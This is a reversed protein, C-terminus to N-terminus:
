GRWGQHPVRGAPVRWVGHGANDGTWHSSRWPKAPDNARPANTRRAGLRPATRNRILLLPSAAILFDCAYQCPQFRGGIGLCRRRQALVLDIAVGRSDIVQVLLQKAEGVFQGGDEVAHDGILCFVSRGIGVVVLHLIALAHQAVQAPTGILEAKIQDLAGSLRASAADSRSFLRGPLLPSTRRFDSWNLVKQTLSLNMKPVQKRAEKKQTHSYYDDCCCVTPGGTTCRDM